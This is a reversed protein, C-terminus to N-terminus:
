NNAPLKFILPVKIASQYIFYTHTVEGHEGLMEGHDSTIIILTSDYIGLEKLKDVVKGICHDTYAIEGAYLDSAFRSAFPEPPDYAQHPDFYHLFFFFRKDKNKKLWDLAVDTTEGGRRQELPHGELTTEFYDNYSEFGQDIGFKSDLPFASIAAGTTFGADTLIEALTVNSEDLRYGENDHVGHYPPITGTFMSSHAPLTQPVPSIANEFLVGEAALADINPTTKSKYGYCSLYDARCTDISILIIHRIGQGPSISRLLLWLGAAIIVVLLLALVLYKRRKGSVM